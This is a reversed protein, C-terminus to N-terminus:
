GAEMLNVWLISITASGLRVLCSTLGTYLTEPRKIPRKYVSRGVDYINDLAYTRYSESLAEINPVWMLSTGLGGPLLVLPPADPKGSIRVFTQGYSTEVTTTESAVPWLKAQEDDPKLYKEKAEPSRFPHYDSMKM